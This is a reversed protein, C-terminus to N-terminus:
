KENGFPRSDADREGIGLIIKFDWNQFQESGLLKFSNNDFWAKFDDESFSWVHETDDFDIPENIPHSIVAYKALPMFKAMVGVPDTLHELIECAVLIDCEVPAVKHVDGCIMSANKHRKEILDIYRSNCEIGTVETRNSFFGSIDLAGCGLELIRPRENDILKIARALYNRSRLIRDKQQNEYVRTFLSKHHDLPDIPANLLKYM